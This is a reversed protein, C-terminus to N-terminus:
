TLFFPFFVVFLFRYLLSAFLIAFIRTRREHTYVKIYWIRCKIDITVIYRRSQYFRSPGNERTMRFREERRRSWADQLRTASKARRWFATLERDNRSLRDRSINPSSRFHKTYNASDHEISKAQLM